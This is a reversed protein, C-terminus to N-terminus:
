LSKEKIHKKAIQYIIIGAALLILSYISNRGDEVFLGTVLGLSILTMIIGNFPYGRALYHHDPYKRRVVLYAAYVFLDILIGFLASISVIVNFLGTSAFLVSIGTIL